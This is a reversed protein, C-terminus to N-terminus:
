QDGLTAGFQGFAAGQGPFGGLAQLMMMDLGAMHPDTLPAIAEGPYFRYPTVTLRQAQNLLRRYPDELWGPLDFETKTVQDGGGNFISGM